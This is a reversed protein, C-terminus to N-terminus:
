HFFSLRKLVLCVPIFLDPTMVVAAFRRLFAAWPPLRLYTVFVSLGWRPSLNPRLGAEQPRSTLVTSGDPIFLHGGHEVL